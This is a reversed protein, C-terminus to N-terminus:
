RYVYVSLSVCVCVIYHDYLLLIIEQIYVQDVHSEAAPYAETVSNSM